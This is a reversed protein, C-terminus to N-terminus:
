TQNQLSVPSCGVKRKRHGGCLQASPNQHKAVPRTMGFRDTRTLIAIQDDSGKSANSDGSRTITATAATASRNKQATQLKQKLKQALTEDGILEAKIIQAGLKNIEEESLLRPPADDKRKHM